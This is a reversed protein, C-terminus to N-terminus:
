AVTALILRPDVNGNPRGMHYCLILRAGEDVAYNISALTGRIRTDDRIHGSEDLPVNFDARIIVRNGGLPLDEISVKNLHMRLPETHEAAPPWTTSSTGSGVRTAGSTTM